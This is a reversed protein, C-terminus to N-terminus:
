LDKGAQKKIRASRKMFYLTGLVVAAIILVVTTSM